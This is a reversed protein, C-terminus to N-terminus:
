AARARGIAHSWARARRYAPPQEGPRRRGRLVEFRDRGTLPCRRMARGRLLVSIRGEIGARFRQGRKFARSKEHATREATKENRRAPPSVRHARGRRDRRGRQGAHLLRSRGRLARARPRLHGRAPLLSPAVQGEDVPNGDLVRYDTIFGGGGRLWFSRTGSSSRASRRGASSSIPTRNSSRSSRRTCRSTSM